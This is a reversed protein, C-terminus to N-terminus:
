AAPNSAAAAAAIHAAEAKAAEAKGAEAKAAALRDAQWAALPGPLPAGGFMDLYGTMQEVLYAPMLRLAEHPIQEVSVGAILRLSVDMGSSGQIATAKLVDGATPARLTVTTYTVSGFAIPTPLTWAVFEPPPVWDM